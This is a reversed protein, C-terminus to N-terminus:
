TSLIVHLTLSPMTIYSVTAVVVLVKYGHLRRRLNRSDTLHRRRPPTQIGLMERRRSSHIWTLTLMLKVSIITLILLGPIEMMASSTIAIGKYNDYEATCAYVDDDYEVIFVVGFLYIKLVLKVFWCLFIVM